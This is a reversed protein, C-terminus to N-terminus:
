QQHVLHRTRSWLQFHRNGAAGAEINLPKKGNGIFSPFSQESKAKAWFPFTRYHMYVTSPVLGGGGAAAEM